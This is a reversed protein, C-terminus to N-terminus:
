SPIILPRNKLFDTLWQQFEEPTVPPEPYRWHQLQPRLEQRLKNMEVEVAITKMKITKLLTLQIRRLVGFWEAWAIDKRPLPGLMKGLATFNQKHPYFHVRNASPTKVLIDASALEDLVSATNRRQFGIIKALAPAGISAKPHLLFFRIAEARAGVGFINRLRLSLFYPESLSPLKSKGSPKLHRVPASSSAPLKSTAYHNVTALLAHHSEILATDFNQAINNLRTSSIHNAYSVCWDLIEGQLRPEDIAASFVLLAELDISTDEENFENGSIGLGTWLSWCLDTVAEDFEKYLSM